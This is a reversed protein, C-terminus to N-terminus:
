ITLSKAHGIAVRERALSAERRLRSETAKTAGAAENQVAQRCAEEWAAQLRRRLFFATCGGGTARVTVALAHTRSLPTTHLRVLLRLGGKDLDLSIVLTHAASRTRTATAFHTSTGCLSPLTFCVHEKRINNGLAQLRQTRRLTTGFVAGWEESEWVKTLFGQWGGDRFGVIHQRPAM